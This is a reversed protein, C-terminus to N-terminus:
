YAYATVGLVVLRGNLTESANDHVRRLQVAITDGAAASDLNANAVSVTVIKIVGSTASLTATATQETGGATTVDLTDTGDALKKVIVGLVAVLGLDGADKGDDTIVFDFKIGTTLTVNGPIKLVQTYTVAKNKVFPVGRAGFPLETLGCTIDNGMSRSSQLDRPGFYAVAEAAM